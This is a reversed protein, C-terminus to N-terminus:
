PLNFETRAHAASVTNGKLEWLQIAHNAAKVADEDQGAARLVLALDLETGARDHLYDTTAMLASAERALTNAEDHHGREALVRARIRRWHAGNPDRPDSIVRESERALAEAEDLRGQALIAHAMMDSLGRTPDGLLEISARLIAEAAAYDGSLMDVTSWYQAQAAVERPTGVDADIERQRARLEGAHELRGEMAMLAAVISITMARIRPADQAQDLVARCRTVADAVPTAGWWCEGAASQLAEFELSRSNARRAHVLMHEAADTAVAGHMHSGGEWMRLEWAFVLARDDGLETLRDILQDVEGPRFGGETDSEARLRALEARALQGSDGLDTALRMAEGAIRRAEASQSGWWLARSLDVLVACREATPVNLLDRARWLLGISSQTDGWDDARRGASALLRGARVALGGGTDAGTPDLEALLRCAQELHYGAIEEYETAREGVRRELSEGFREHLAARARKSMHAYAADRILQHRFRFAEDGVFAEYYPEILESRILEDLNQALETASRDSVLLALTSRHFVRGEVSAGELVERQEEVLNDLRSALLAQITGPVDMDETDSPDALTALMQEVFLPNGEAATMIRRRRDANLGYGEPRSDIMQRTEDESLPELLISTSNTKGGAWGPRGELLEPRASCVVLIPAGRSLDAIHDVLDLLTPEAWHIDEFVLVLPGRSAVREFLRRAAWAIEDSGVIPVDLGIAWALRSAVAKDDVLSELKECAASDSDGAIVGTAARVMETLPSLTVGEGYSPCHGVLVTASAAPGRLLESILRSKGVGAAGLMTFLHCRGERSARELAEALLTRESERGVLPMDMRRSFGAASADVRVLRWATLPEDKGKVTIPEVPEADVADRVLRHTVEGILVEGPEAAQELRAAVNVADGTVLAGGAGAVVEGTNVGIRAPIGIRDLEACMEAAARVARTADEDHLVPVGFVAMVADGIFKEVTGGHREVVDRMRTHYDAMLARLTEPDSRAAVATSGAMDCFLVTVTKRVERAAERDGALPAACAGCFRSTEPNGHGCKTCTIV